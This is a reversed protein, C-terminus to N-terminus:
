SGDIKRITAILPNLLWRTLRRANEHRSIQSALYPSYRYYIRICLAGWPHPALRTDRFSQLRAVEPALPSGYAATAIFCYKKRAAKEGGPAARQGAAPPPTLQPPAVEGIERLEAGLDTADEASDEAAPTEVGAAEM